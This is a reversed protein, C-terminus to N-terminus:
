FFWPRNKQKVNAFHTKWALKYQEEQKSVKDQPFYRNSTLYSDPILEKYEEYYEFYARKLDLIDPEKESFFLVDSLHELLGGQLLIAKKYSISESKLTKIEELYKRELEINRVEKIRSEKIATEDLYARGKPTVFLTVQMVGILELAILRAVSGRLENPLEVEQCAGDNNLLRLLRIERSNLEFM